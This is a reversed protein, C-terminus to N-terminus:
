RLGGEPRRARVEPRRRRAGGPAAAAPRHWEGTYVGEDLGVVCQGCDADLLSKSLTIAAHGYAGV